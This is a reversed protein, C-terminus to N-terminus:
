SFVYMGDEYEVEFTQNEGYSVHGAYEFRYGLEDYFDSVYCILKKDKIIVVNAMNDQDSQHYEPLRLGIAKELSERNYSYADFIYIDDWEFPVAKELTIKAGASQRTLALGLERNKEAIPRHNAYPIIGWVIILALILVALFVLIIKKLTFTEIVENENM